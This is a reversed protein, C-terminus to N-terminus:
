MLMWIWLEPPSPWGPAGVQVEEASELVGIAGHHSHTLPFYLICDLFSSRSDTLCSLHLHLTRTSTPRLNRKSLLATATAEPGWVAWRGGGVAAWQRGGSPFSAPIALADSSFKPFTWGAIGLAAYLVVCMCLVYIWVVCGAAMDSAAGACYLCFLRLPLFAQLFFTSTVSTAAPSSSTRSWIIM